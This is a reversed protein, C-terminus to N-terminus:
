RYQLMEPHDRNIQQAVFRSGPINLHGNDRYLIEGNMAMRCDRTDCFYRSLDIIKVGPNLRVVRELLHLYDRERLCASSPAECLNKSGLRGSYKCKKADFPFTPVDDIIYVQRHNSRLKKITADMEAVFDEPRSYKAQKYRYRWAATMLVTHISPSSAVYDYIHAFDNNKVIPLSSKTYYVVNQNPNSDALGLFLHEAHSDGILAITPAMSEKSQFCRITDGWVLAEQRLNM